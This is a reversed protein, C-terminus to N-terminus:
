NTSTRKMTTGSTTLSQWSPKIVTRGIYTSSMIVNKGLFDFIIQFQKLCFCFICTLYPFTYRLDYSLWRAVIIANNLKSGTPLHILDLFFFFIKFSFAPHPGFSYSFLPPPMWINRQYILEKRRLIFYMFKTPLLSWSVLM